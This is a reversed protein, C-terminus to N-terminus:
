RRRCLDFESWHRKESVWIGTNSGRWLVQDKKESWAPDPGVDETWAENSVALVDAHLSTKCMSLVPYLESAPRPGDGFGLLFGQTHVLSPHLCPDM